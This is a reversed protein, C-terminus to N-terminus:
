LFTGYSRKTKFKLEISHQMRHLLMMDHNLIVGVATDETLLQQYEFIYTHKWFEPNVNFEDYPYFRYKGFNYDIPGVFDGAEDTPWGAGETGPDDTNYRHSFYKSHNVRCADLVWELTEIHGRETSTGTISFDVNRNSNYQPSYPNPTDFKGTYQVAGQNAQVVTHANDALTDQAASGYTSASASQDFFRSYLTAAAIYAGNSTPHTDGSLEGSDDWALGAPAVACGGTRGIRCVVEKYHDLPTSSGSAPWPMLLVTEASGKAVEKAIESVGLAYFGPLYEMTHADGILVVYDWETGNEGRLNAWRTTEADEPFPFHFWHFLNAHRYGSSTGHFDEFSVNVTGLGAGGLISTLESVVGSPDFASVSAVGEDAFVYSQSSSDTASGIVLVNVDAM